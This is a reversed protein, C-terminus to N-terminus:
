QQGRMFYMKGNPAPDPFVRSVDNGDYLVGNKMVYVVSRSNRIDTLPSDRMIVLDALKGAEISGLDGDLGHYKAGNITAMQIVDMPSFGGQVFLEMEWHADLGFMQGHGGMQVLVGADFLKKMEAAMEPAYVDDPWFHTSRRFALLQDRRAFNLLKPNEWLRESQNFFSQGAPGNYVVLLTPTVGIKSAKFLQIVDDYLPTLGMSHELGTLGDVIQTFNMPADGASEAVLNIRLERAATAIQHRVARTFNVYDKIATAGHEQNYGVHEGADSLSTVPRYLKPRFHRLGYMPSGVSFLRPGIIAGRRVMDSVWFDKEATGYLEYMTTVGHALAAQLRPLRQEIVNTQSLLAKYHAHADVIGPMVTHRPLDYVQAGRPIAVNSGVAAVRNGEVLVTANELVDRGANM